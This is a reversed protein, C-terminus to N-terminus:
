RFPRTNCETKAAALNHAEDLVVLLPAQRFVELRANKLLMRGIANAVVERAGFEYGISSMCIRLLSADSELFQNLADSLSSGQLTPDFVCSLSSSGIVGLIRTFLSSCYALENSQGGWHDQKRQDDPYCCEEALQRVLYKVDFEQTPLDVLSANKGQNLARRYETKPQGVKPIFGDPALHPALKALRLSKIAERLKPGQTKGSPQFLAIFDGETFDRPPIVIEQSDVALNLPKGLHCHMVDEGDLSRYEGTADLLVVKSSFRRCEQIIKATTWSKGGGTSGLIACHRGFLKEPTVSVLFSNEGSVAGLELTVDPASEDVGSSTLQTIRSVFESPASFVRDGLRPYSGIGAQVRLSTPSVSGLLRIVGIAAVKGAGKFDQSIENRDRDPLSVEIIRGM